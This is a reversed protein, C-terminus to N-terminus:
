GIVRLELKGCHSCRYFAMKGERINRGAFLDKRIPDNTIKREEDTDHYWEHNCPEPTKHGPLDLTCKYGHFGHEELWKEFM